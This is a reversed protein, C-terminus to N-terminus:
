PKMTGRREPPRPAPQEWAIGTLRIRVARALNRAPDTSKAFMSLEVESVGLEHLAEKYICDGSHDM